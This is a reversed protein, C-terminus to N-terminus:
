GVKKRKLRTQFPKTKIISSKTNKKNPLKTLQKGSLMNKVKKLKNLYSISKNMSKKSIYVTSGFKITDLSYNRNDTKIMQTVTISFNFYTISMRNVFVDYYGNSELIEKCKSVTIYNDINFTNQFLKLSKHNVYLRENIKKFHLQNNDHLFTVVSESLKLKEMVKTKNTLPLYDKHIKKLSSNSDSKNLISKKQTVKTRLKYIDLKNGQKDNININLQLCLGDLTKYHKKVLITEEKLEVISKDQLSKLDRKLTNKQSLFKKVLTDRQKPKTYQLLIIENCLTQTKTVLKIQKKISFKTVKM